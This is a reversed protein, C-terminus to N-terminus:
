MSVPYLRVCSHCQTVSSHPNEIISGPVTKQSAASAPALFRVGQALSLLEVVVDLVPLSDAAKLDPKRKTLRNQLLM